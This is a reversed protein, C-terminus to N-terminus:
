MMVPKCLQALVAVHGGDTVPVVLRADDEVAKVDALLLVAVDVDIEGAPTEDERRTRVDSKEFFFIKLLLHLDVTAPTTAPSLADVPNFKM